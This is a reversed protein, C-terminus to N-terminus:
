SADPTPVDSLIEDVIKSASVYKMRAEPRLIMRHGLVPVALEKIDDALV